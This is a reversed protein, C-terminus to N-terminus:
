RATFTFNSLGVEDSGNVMIGFKGKTFDRGPETWSDLEVWKDDDGQIKHILRTPSADIQINWVRMSKDQKHAVRKRDTTKGNVVVKSWFNEEDLEFQSYNKADVYNLFWRVRGSRLVSGGKLMYISFTFIGNPQLAYTLTAAGRHRYIGDALEWAGAPEFSSMDGTRAKPPAVKVPEPKPPPPPPAVPPPPPPIAALTSDAVGIVVTEGARFTRMFRKPEFQERRLEISHEGPAISSNRFSGDNGVTGLPRDSLLIQTGAAAGSVSIAAFQPVPKLTFTLKTETGQAVKATQAPVPEFGAKEVRVTVDGFTQIRALGKETRRKQEKNNVFIRVDDQGTAILLTGIKQDTKLFATLTPASDFIGTLTRQTPGEGVLFESPGPKFSALDSGDTTADTEAQGNLMLKLPGSSTVVHAKAGLNTILVALLDKTQISGAVAPIAAPAAAFTFKAESTGGAVRVTHTGPEVGELTAQGDQLEVPPKDDLFVQGSKLDAFIRLSPAKPALTLKLSAAQSPAVTLQAEASDYGDMSATIKYNGPALKAVCDSTCTQQGDVLIAAGVPTTTINAEVPTVAAQQLGRDRMVKVGFGVGAILLVVFAWVLGKRRSKVPLEAAPPSTVAIPPADVAPTVSPAPPPQTQKIKSGRALIHQKVDHAVLQVEFDGSYQKTIEELRGFLPQLGALTHIQDIQQDLGKLEELPTLNGSGVVSDYVLATVM